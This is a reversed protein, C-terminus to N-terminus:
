IALNDESKIVKLLKEVTETSVLMNLMERGDIISDNRIILENLVATVNSVLEFDKPKNEILELM